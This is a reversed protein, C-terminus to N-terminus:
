RGTFWRWYEGFTDRTGHWASGWEWETGPTHLMIQWLNVIYVMILFTGLLVAVHFLVIAVVAYRADSLKM